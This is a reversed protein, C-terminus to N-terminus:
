GSDFCLRQCCSVLLWCPVHGCWMQDSNHIATAWRRAAVVRRKQDTCQLRRAARRTLTLRARAGFYNGDLLERLERLMDVAVGGELADEEWGREMAEPRGREDPWRM